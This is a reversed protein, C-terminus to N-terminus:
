DMEFWLLIKVTSNSVNLITVHASHRQKESPWMHLQKPLFLADAAFKQLQLAQPQTARESKKVKEQKKSDTSMANM